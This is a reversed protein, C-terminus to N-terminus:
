DIMLSGTTSRNRLNDTYRIDRSKRGGIRERVEIEIRLEDMLKKTEWVENEDDFNQGLIDKSEHPLKIKTIPVSIIGYMRQDTGM